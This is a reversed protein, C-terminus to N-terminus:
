LAPRPGPAIKIVHGQEALRSQLGQALSRDQESASGALAQAIGQYAALVRQENAKARTSAAPQTRSTKDREPVLGRGRMERVAQSQGKQRELRVRRRSAVADIGRAQLERAFTQRWRELDAKRPDMRRGNCDVMKVLVHAHHNDTDAHHAMVWQHGAFTQGAAARAAQSIAERGLHAPMSYIIKLVERRAARAKGGAMVAPAAVEPIPPGGLSWEKRLQERGETGRYVDGVENELELEPESKKKYRGARAVYDLSRALSKMDASSGTIKVMVEPRRAVFARVHERVAHARKSVAMVLAAGKVILKRMGQDQSKGRPLDHEYWVVHEGFEALQEDTTKSL